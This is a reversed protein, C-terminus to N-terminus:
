AIQWPNLVVLDEIYDFDKVNRTAISLRNAKAIAAILADEVSIPKGQRTRESIIKAYYNAAEGNFVLCRNAFDEDFMAAAVEMLGQKRKGEPMLALGALIEAQTIACIWRQRKKSSGAM